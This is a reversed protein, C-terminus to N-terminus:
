RAVPFAYVEIRAVDSCGTLSQKGNQTGHEGGPMLDTYDIEDVKSSDVDAAWGGFPTIKDINL